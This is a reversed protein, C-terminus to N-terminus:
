YARHFVGNWLRLLLVVMVILPLLRCRAVGLEHWAGGGWVGGPGVSLLFHSSVMVAMTVM